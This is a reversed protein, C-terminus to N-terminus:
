YSGYHEGQLHKRSRSQQEEITELRHIDIEDPAAIGLTVQEKTHQISLLKIEILGQHLFLSEKKALLLVFNQFRYNKERLKLDAQYAAHISLAIFKRRLGLLTLEFQGHHILIKEGLQRRLILM